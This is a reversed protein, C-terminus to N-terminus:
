ILYKNLMKTRASGSAACFGTIRCSTDGDPVISKLPAAFVVGIRMPVVSGDLQVAPSSKKRVFVPTKWHM